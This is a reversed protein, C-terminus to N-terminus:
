RAATPAALLRGPVQFRPHRFASRPHGCLGCYNLPL